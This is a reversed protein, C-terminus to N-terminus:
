ARFYNIREMIRMRSIMWLKGVFIGCWVKIKNWIIHPNRDACTTIIILMNSVCLLIDDYRIVALTADIARNNTNNNYKIPNKKNRNNTIIIHNNINPGCDVNIKTWFRQCTSYMATVRTRNLIMDVFWRFSSYDCKTTLITCSHLM